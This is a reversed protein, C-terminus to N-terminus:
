FCSGSMRAQCICGAAWRPASAKTMSSKRCAPSSGSPGAARHQGGRLIVWYEDGHVHLARGEALLDGTRHGPEDDGPHRMSAQLVARATWLYQDGSVHGETDNVDKLEDLDIAITAFYGPLRAVEAQM